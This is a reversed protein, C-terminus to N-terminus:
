SARLQENDVPLDLVARSRPVDDLLARRHSVPDRGAAAALWASGPSRDDILRSM